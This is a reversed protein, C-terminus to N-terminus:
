YTEFEDHFVESGQTLQSSIDDSSSNLSCPTDRICTSTNHITPCVSFHPSSSTEINIDEKVPVCELYPNSNDHSFSLDCSTSPREDCSTGGLNSSQSDNLIPLENNQHM